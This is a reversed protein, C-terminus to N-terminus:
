GGNEEATLVPRTAEPAPQASEQAPSAAKEECSAATLLGAACPILLIANVSRNALKM